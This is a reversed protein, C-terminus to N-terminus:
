PIMEMPKVSQTGSGEAFYAELIARAVPAAYTGHGGQAIMVSVAVLPNDAPAYAIFWAFADRNTSQATGTKAGVSLTCGSFANKATGSVVAERMGEMVSRVDNANLFAESAIVPVTIGTSDPLCLVLRPTFRKGNQTIAAVANAMQLVSVSTDGQGIASALIRAPRWRWLDINDYLIKCQAASFGLPSFLSQARSLSPNTLLDRIAETAATEDVNAKLAKMQSWAKRIAAADSLTQSDLSGDAEGMLGIGSKAGFGLRRAMAEIDHSGTRVGMEFFYYNCSVALARKLDVLGHTEHSDNWTWCAPPDVASFYTYQGQDFITEGPTVVKKQLAALATVPKFVSGPAFANTIANNVLPRPLTPDRNTDGSANLYTPNIAQWTKDDMTQLFANPDFSPVSAMALVDGSRVDIAVAAGIRANPFSEGMGGSRIKAMTDILAQEAVKQLNSDITLVVDQGDAASKQSLVTSRRGSSDVSVTVQGSAPRLIDEFVAELGSKGVIDTYVDYGKKTYAEADEASIKGLYGISHCFLTGNPYNRVPIAECAIGPMLLANEAFQACIAANDFLALRVPKYARYRQRNLQLRVALVNLKEEQPIADVAYRKFLTEATQSAASGAQLKQEKLFAEIDSQIYIYMGDKYQIPLDCDLAINAHKLIVLAAYISQNLQTKAVDSASITAEYMLKTGALTRGFRDTIRGRGGAVTITRVRSERALLAYAPGRIVQMFFLCGILLAVSVVTAISYIRLRRQM